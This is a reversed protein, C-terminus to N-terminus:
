TTSLLLLYTYCGLHLFFVILCMTVKTKNGDVVDQSCKISKFISIITTFSEKKMGPVSHQLGEEGLLISLILHLRWYIPGFAKVNEYEEIDPTSPDHALGHVLFSIIYEPYATLL